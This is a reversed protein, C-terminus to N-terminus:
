KRLGLQAVVERYRGPDERALYVLFRGRKGVLGMLGRRCAYDQRHLKLHASLENIRETLLAVQVATSGTDKEHLAFQHVINDKKEKPIM